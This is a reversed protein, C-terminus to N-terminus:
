RPKMMGAESSTSPPALSIPVSATSATNTDAATNPCSIGGRSSFCSPLTSSTTLRNKVRGTKVRSPIARGIASHPFTPAPTTAATTVATSARRIM